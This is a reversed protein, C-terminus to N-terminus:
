IVIYVNIIEFYIGGQFSWLFSSGYSLIIEYKNKQLTTGKFLPNMLSFRNYVLLRLDDSDILLDDEM